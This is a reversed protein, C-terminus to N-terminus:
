PLRLITGHKRMKKSLMDAAVESAHSITARLRMSSFRMGLPRPDSLSKAILKGCRFTEELTPLLAGGENAIASSMVTQRVQASM